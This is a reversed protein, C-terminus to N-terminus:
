RVREKIEELYGERTFGLKMKKWREIERDREGIAEEVLLDRNEKMMKKIRRDEM